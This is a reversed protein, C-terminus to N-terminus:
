TFQNTAAESELLAGTAADYVRVAQQTRAFLLQYQPSYELQLVGSGVSFSQRAKLLDFASDGTTTSLTSGSAVSYEDAVATAPRAAPQPITITVTAAASRQAGAALRYQFTDTGAYGATPSYSFSGNTQLTLQGHAPGTVLEATVGTAPNDNALVGASRQGIFYHHLRAATSDYAWVHAGDDTTCFVTTQFGLAGLYVGNSANYYSSNGFAIQGTAAYINDAFTQLNTRVNAGDVQLKGSYFRNGDSSLVTTGGYGSASGYVGTSEAAQLQDGDLKLVNFEHSSSGSNDHFVRGTRHDFEMDGSYNASIRSLEVSPGGAAGFTNLTIDVWQDGEQALYRDESVAEIRWVTQPAQHVEWTRNALDYRHVFHPNAARGYGTVEGGYDAVFLFRGDPTLDMDTFTDTPTHRDLVLKAVTDVVTVQGGSDRLFLLGFQDSYELQQVNGSFDVTQVDTVAPTAAAAGARTVLTQGFATQYADNVPVLNTLLERQELIEAGVARLDRAKRRVQQHPRSIRGIRDRWSRFRM